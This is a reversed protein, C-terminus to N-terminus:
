EKERKRVCRLNKGGIRLIGGLGGEQLWFLRPQEVGYSSFKLKQKRARWRWEFTSPIEVDMYVTKLSRIRLKERGTKYDERENYNDVGITVCVMPRRIALLLM